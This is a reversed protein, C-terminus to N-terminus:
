SNLWSPDLERVASCGLLTLALRLENVIIQVARAAGADGGAGLGYLLPRGVLCARAGLALAKAVDSGRRVGGDFYIDADPGVAAVVAPLARISSPAHDLQRGGHNSVVVADAGIAVAQRADEPRIIGKVVLPGAWADRIWSLDDWSLGPDFQREIYNALSVADRRGCEPRRANAITARPRTFFNASWRPRRLGEKLSRLTVRPPIGFGNRMDRERSGARPVDVTLVLALYGAAEARRILERVIGRDRWLYLQFWKPGPAAHAVEEITYSAMASLVYVSGAAHMALAAGIEGRYNVLGTLGTPAGIIPIGIPQGLVNTSLDIQSVDRLIRPWLLLDAFDQVNRHATVEDGAAGDVFDFIVTPIARAALSRLDAINACRELRRAIRTSRHRRSQLEAIDVALQRGLLRGFEM